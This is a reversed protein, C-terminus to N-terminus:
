VRKVGPDSVALVCYPLKAGLTPKVQLGFKLLPNSWLSAPSDPCVTSRPPKEIAKTRSPRLVKRLMMAALGPCVISAVWFTLPVGYGNANPRRKRFPMGATSGVSGVDGFSGLTPAM